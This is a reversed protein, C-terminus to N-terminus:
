LTLINSRPPNASTITPTRLRYVARNKSHPSNRTATTKRVFSWISLRCKINDILSNSFVCLRPYIFPIQRFFLNSFYCGFIAVITSFLRRLNSSIFVTISFIDIVPYVSHVIRKSVNMSVNNRTTSLAVKRLPLKRLCLKKIPYIPNMFIHKVFIRLTM